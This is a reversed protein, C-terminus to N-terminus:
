KQRLIPAKFVIRRPIGARVEVHDVSADGAADMRSFLRVVEASLAFDQLGQEPRVVDEVDLKVDILVETAPLMVPEGQQVAFRTVKGFGIQQCQRVFAQRLTSLDSFRLEPM